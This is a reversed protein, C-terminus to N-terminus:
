AQVERTCSDLDANIKTSIRLNMQRIGDRRIQWAKETTLRRWTMEHTYLNWLFKIGLRMGTGRMVCVEQIRLISPRIAM